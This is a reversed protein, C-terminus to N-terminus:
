VADRCRSFAYLSGGCLAMWTGLLLCLAKGDGSTKQFGCPGSVQLVKWGVQRWTAGIGQLWGAVKAPSSDMLNMAALRGVLVRRCSALEKEKSSPAHLRLPALM